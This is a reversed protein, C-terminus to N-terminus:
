HKRMRILGATQGNQLIVAGSVILSRMLPIRWLLTGQISGIKYDLLSKAKAKM